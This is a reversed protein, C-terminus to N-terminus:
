RSIAWSTIIKRSNKSSVTGTRQAGTALKGPRRCPRRRSRAGLRVLLATRWQCYGLAPDPKALIEKLRPIIQAPRRELIAQYVQTGLAITDDANPHLPALLASARPLDGEAQAIAAKEALTDVDDPTIDLVQDLKRLAEPFRRLIISSAAHSTLLNVNRPDLREAENFYSESRDWQGRRRAVYALSEPIQSSNPLFQRAQEFYRVATDYDKLCAYHYYGKAM